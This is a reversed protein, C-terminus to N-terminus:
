PAFGAAWHAFLTPCSRAVRQLWQSSQGPRRRLRKYKKQAWLALRRNLPRLARRLMTRGYRGFYAVWGRIKANFLRSLDTLELDSKRHLKWRRVEAILAKAAKVSIAPLFRTFPKGQGKASRPGFGYSLFDFQIHEHDGTRKGDRCYVIRTKDPHSQLKCRRLREEVAAKVQQAQEHSPCHIVVDDAYREFPCGPHQERMWEDLVHHLFINALLPSIVGGQPTGLDRASLTGDELEVPAKLWREIYLLVWPCDTHKRVARMMLAHDINDFFGKIDLDVVWDCRWCRERCVGVADLASKGPRYGYSDPHFLPEVKPELEMKVVMQAVRDGVTPIGLPRQGGDAKPIMVRMVPPPMYSGSSM